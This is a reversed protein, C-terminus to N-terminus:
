IFPEYIRRCKEIRARVLDHYQKGQVWSPVPIGVWDRLKPVVLCYIRSPIQGALYLSIALRWRGGQRIYRFLEWTIREPAYYGIKTGVLSRLLLRFSLSSAWARYAKYRLHDPLVSFVGPFRLLMTELYQWKPAADDLGDRFQGKKLSYPVVWGSRYGPNRMMGLLLAFHAFGSAIGFYGWRINRKASSVRFLVHSIWGASQLLDFPFPEEEHLGSLRLRSDLKHSLLVVDADSMELLADLVDTIQAAHIPDDDGRLWVWETEALEICRMFNAGGGINCQNWHYRVFPYRHQIEHDPEDSNDSVLVVIDERKEAIERLEGLRAYLSRRRNRTPIAITLM